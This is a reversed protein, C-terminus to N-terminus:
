YKWLIGVSPVIGLWTNVRPDLSQAGSASTAPRYDICCANAHNTLNSVELWAELEGRPMTFRRSARVDLSQFAGLRDGNRAGILATSSASTVQLSVPTAPWGTHWTEALTVDWRGAAWRMGASAAHKQDWSRLEYQGDIRDEAESWAYNFWGSFAGEPKWTLSVELGEVRASSPAVRVRDPQLEPLLLLTDFLNEYRPKLKSYNKRYAEVRVALSPSLDHDMSLVLHEAHQAPLFATVGDEIQLENIRQLQSYQGWSARFRTDPRASYLLSLRPGVQVAHEPGTYTQDDVRMGAEAVLNDAVNFRSSWFAAYQWGDPSVSFTRVSDTTGITPFLVTPEFRVRSWYHYEAQLEKLEVGFHHLGFSTNWDFGATLAVVQFQRRDRVSGERRGPDSVEGRRDNDVQTYSLVAEGSLADSWEHQVTAWAYGNRYGAFAFEGAREWNFDIEDRSGLVHLAIRTGEDFQYDITAFGDQYEPNGLDTDLANFVQGLNSQRGSVLWHSRGDALQGAALGNVHFLSLGLELSHDVPAKLSHTDIVASMRDGYQAGFGGSHFDLGGIFRSDLLSVPSLFNKLHFPEYLTLGDLLILTEGPEGGRVSSLGSVGNAAVGPLRQVAKLTEEGLRPLTHLVDGSLLTHSGPQVEGLAYRSTTVIVEELLVARPADTQPRPAASPTAAASTVPRVAYVGEGVQVLQLGHAALIEELMPVGVQAAPEAVIRLSDPVVGTNFVIVIGQARAEALVDAVARGALLAGAAGAPGASFLPAVLLCAALLPAHIPVPLRVPSGSISVRLPPNPLRSIVRRGAPHPVRGAKWCV